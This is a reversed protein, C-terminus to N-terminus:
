CFTARPWHEKVAKAFEDGMRCRQLVLYATEVEDITKFALIKDVLQIEVGSMSDLYRRLSLWVLIDKVYSNAYELPDATAVEGEAVISPLMKLQLSRLVQPAKSDHELAHRAMLCGAALRSSDLGFDKAKKLAQNALVYKEQGLFIQFGLWWTEPKSPKCTELHKWADYCKQLGDKSELLAIGFPDDDLKLDLTELQHARNRKANSVERESLGDSEKLAYSLWEGMAISVAQEYVPHSYLENEWEVLSVYQRLTGRRPGYFHFDYQERHYSHFIEIVQVARKLTLGHDRQRRHAEAMLIIVNVSEMSILHKLAEQDNEAYKGWLPFQFALKYGDELEGARFALAAAKTNLYRDGKLEESAAKVVAAGEKLSGARQLLESLALQVDTKVNEELDDLKLSELLALGETQRYTYSLHRALFVLATPSLESKKSMMNLRNEVVDIIADRKSDEAYLCKVLMFTSPVDRALKGSLYVQLRQSYDSLEAPSFILLPRSWPMDAKPFRSQLNAYLAIKDSSLNELAAYYSSNEPNRELLQFYKLEAAKKDFHALTLAKTELWALKDRVKSEIKNLDSLAREYHGQAVIAKNKFMLLESIEIDDMLEAQATKPTKSSSKEVSIIQEYLAVTQEVGAYDKNLYLAAVLGTWAMRLSMRAGLAQRRIQVLTGFDRQQAALMALDQHVSLNDQKLKYSNFYAKYAASYDHILKNYIGAMHWAVHSKVDVKCGEAILQKAEAEDKKLHHLLLGKLCLSEGHVREKRRKIIEEVEALAKDYSKSEYLTLAKQFAQTDKSSLPQSKGEMKQRHKSVLKSSDKFKRFLAMHPLTCDWPLM